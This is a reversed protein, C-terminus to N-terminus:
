NIESRTADYVAQSGEKAPHAATVCSPCSQPGVRRQINGYYHDRIVDPHFHAVVMAGPIAERLCFTFDLEPVWDPRNVKIRTWEQLMKGALQEREHSSVMSLPLDVVLITPVGRRRLAEHAEFGLVCQVWESGYLLYHGAGNTLGRDDMVLYLRGTDRQTSDFDHLLQEIVPRLRALRDEERVIRRVEDALMAPDNLLIGAQHYRGADETRCGHYTRATAFSLADALNQVVYDVEFGLIRQTKKLWDSDDWCIDQEGMQHLHRIGRENLFPRLWRSVASAWSKPQKWDIIADRWIASM